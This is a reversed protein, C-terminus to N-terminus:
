IGLKKKVLPAVDVSNTKSVYPTLGANEELIYIFNNEAGVENIVNRLKMLIPQMLQQQKQALEQRQQAIYQQIKQYNEQLEQEREMQQAESMKPQQQQYDNMMKQFDENLMALTSEVKSQETELQKEADKYQPMQEIISETNIHGFKQAQAFSISAM